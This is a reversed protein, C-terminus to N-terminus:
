QWDEENMAERIGGPVEKMLIDQDELSSSDSDSSDPLETNSETPVNAPRPPKSTIATIKEDLKAALAEDVATQTRLVALQGRLAGLLMGELEEETKEALNYYSPCTDKDRLDYIRGRCNQFLGPFGGIPKVKDKVGEEKIESGLDRDPVVKLGKETLVKSYDTDPLPWDPLFYWWRVQLARILSDKEKSVELGLAKPLDRARKARLERKVRKTQLEKAKKTSFNNFNIYKFAWKDRM